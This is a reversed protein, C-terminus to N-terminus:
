KILEKFREWLSKFKGQLGAKIEEQMEQKEKQFEEKIVPKREKIEKGLTKQWLNDFFPFVYSNWINKLDNFVSRCFDVVGRWISKLFEPIFKLAKLGIDEMGGTSALLRVAPENQARVLSFSALIATSIALFLAFNVIRLKYNM